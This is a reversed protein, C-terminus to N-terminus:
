TTKNKRWKEDGDDDDYIDKRKILFGDEEESNEEESELYDSYKLELKVLNERNRNSYGPIIVKHKIKSRKVKLKEGM